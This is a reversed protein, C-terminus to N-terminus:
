ARATSFSYYATGGDFVKSFHLVISKTAQATCGGLGDPSSIPLSSFPLEVAERALRSGLLELVRGDETGAEESRKAKEKAARWGRRRWSSTRKGRSLSGMSDNKARQQLSRLVNNWQCLGAQDKLAEVASM